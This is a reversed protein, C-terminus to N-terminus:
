RSDTDCRADTAMFMRFPGLSGIPRYAAFLSAAAPSQAYYARLDLARRGAPAVPSAEEIALLRPPAACLDEVIQEFFTRELPPMAELRHRQLPGAGARDQDAYFGSLFWLSNHRLSWAAGTYNVAPFAPYIITRMSLVALRGQPAHARIAEILPTALDPSAPRRAEAIYRTSAVGLVAAFVIALGRRGGRLLSLASPLADLTVLAAAALFLLLWVRAPYLQYGWGKFQLLAAVLYGTGAAFAVAPLREGRPWRVAAFLAAAALGLQV